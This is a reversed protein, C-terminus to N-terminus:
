LSFNKWLINQNFSRPFTRKRKTRNFIGIFSFRSSSRFLSGIKCNFWIWGDLFSYFSTCFFFPFLPILFMYVNRMIIGKLSSLHNCRDDLSHLLYENSYEFWLLLFFLLVFPINIQQLGCNRFLETKILFERNDELSM